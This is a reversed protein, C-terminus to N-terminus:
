RRFAAVRAAPDVVMAEIGTVATEGLGRAVVAARSTLGGRSTIVAKAALMGGFDDPSTEPGALVVDRGLAAWEM